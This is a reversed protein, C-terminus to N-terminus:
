CHIIFLSYHAAIVYRRAAKVGHGAAKAGHRLEELCCDKM